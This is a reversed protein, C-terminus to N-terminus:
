KFEKKLMIMGQSKNIQLYFSDHLLINSTGATLLFLAPGLTRVTEPGLMQEIQKADRQLQIAIEPHELTYQSTTESCGRSTACALLVLAEGLM